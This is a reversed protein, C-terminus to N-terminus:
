KFDSYFRQLREELVPFMSRPVQSVCARLGETRESGTINLTIASIGYYLLKELLEGSSMGPFSVTFYFGDAVPQDIDTDYVIKFGNAIFMQKMM